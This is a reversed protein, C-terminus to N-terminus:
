KLCHVKRGLLAARAVERQRDYEVLEFKALFGLIRRVRSESLSVWNAIEGASHWRRSRSFLDFVEDVKSTLM